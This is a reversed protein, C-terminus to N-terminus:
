RAGGGCETAQVPQVRFGTFRFLPGNRLAETVANATTASGKPLFRLAEFADTHELWVEVLWFPFATPAGIAAHLHALDQILTPKQASGDPLPTFQLYVLKPIRGDHCASAARHVMQYVASAVNDSRLPVLAFPQILSLWGDLVERRNQTSRWKGVIEYRPETWKAEIAVTHEGALLMLDTHSPKGRGGPSQVQFELHARISSADDTLEDAICKWVAGGHKLLSLLPVTSRTPSKFEDAGYFPLSEDVQRLPKTGFYLETDKM